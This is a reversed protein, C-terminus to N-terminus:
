WHSCLEGTCSAHCGACSAPNTEVLEGLSGITQWNWNGGNDGAGDATRRMITTIDESGPTCNADEDWQVKLIVTGETVEAASGAEPSVWTEQYGGGPHGTQVCTAVQIYSSAYDPPYYAEDSLSYCGGTFLMMVCLFVSRHTM